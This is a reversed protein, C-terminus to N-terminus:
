GPRGGTILTTVDVEQVVAESRIERAAIAGGVKASARAHTL